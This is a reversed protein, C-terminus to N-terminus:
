IWLAKNGFDIEHNAEMESEHEPTFGSVRCLREMDDDQLSFTFVQRLNRHRSYPQGGQEEVFDMGLQTGVSISDGDNLQLLWRLVVSEVSAQHKFSIDVLADMITRYRKWKQVSELQMGTHCCSDLLTTFMSKSSASLEAWERFQYYNNTFLGGGLPASILRSCGHDNCVVGLEGSSQLNNTNMLNGRIDNSHINFGCGLADRLLSPPFNNTSISQILGERKMEFLTNLVDLHYPSKNRYELSVSDLSEGKTRLLASSVSERVMWGNGFSVPALEKESGRTVSNESLISPVELNVMFHCSRLVSSPTNQQLTHYFKTEAQHRIETRFTRQQMKELAISSPSKRKRSASGNEKKKKYKEHSNNVRFTNFGSDILKQSNKVGERWVDKGDNANSPPNIGVAILCPSVVDNGDDIDIKRYAGPPLPGIERDIRPPNSTHWL